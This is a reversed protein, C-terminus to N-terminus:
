PGMSEVRGDSGTAPSSRDFAQALARAEVINDEISCYTWGGYRGISHVGHRGAAAGSRLPTTRAVVTTIHVYAPDLVVSPALSWSTTPSSARASWTPSCAAGDVAEVDVPRRSTPRLRDRRLPEDPREDFINDYFGVRYFSRERDPFYIWHCAARARATSASTSCWCRTGPSCRRTTPCGPSPALLNPLPVSSVLSRVRLPDRAEAHPSTRPALDIAVVPEGLLTRGPRVPRQCRRSTSSPAARPIPSPRTTARTTRPAMNRRHRDLDAHPFFRGMADVDLRGLDSAYLKENYPILFKEAIARGFRAYLMQEFDQPRPPTGREPAFYLDHLCDIFEDHPLQHINKQFPFDILRGKYLVKSRRAVKRM